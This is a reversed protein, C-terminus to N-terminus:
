QPLASSKFDDFPAFFEVSSYSESVLDDLLFFEVYQEFNGFVRFFDDYATLTRSLPNPKGLYHLRICELTLDLRDSIERTFGRAGNLTQVGDRRDGPFVM